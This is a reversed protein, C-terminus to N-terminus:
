RDNQRIEKMKNRQNQLSKQMRCNMRERHHRQGMPEMSVVGLKFGDAVTLQRKDVFQISLVIESKRKQVGLKMVSQVHWSKTAQNVKDQPAVAVMCIASM